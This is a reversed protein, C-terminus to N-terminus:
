RGSRGGFHSNAVDPLPAPAMELVPVVAGQALTSAAVQRGDAYLVVHEGNSVAAAMHWKGADLAQDGAVFGASSQARGLWLGLRNDALGIFRADEAAPDGMGAILATGQQPESSQFWFVLAWSARGELIPDQTAQQNPGQSAEPASALGDLSTSPSLTKNLGPGDFLFVANFPGYAEVPPAPAQALLSASLAIAVFAAAVRVGTCVSPRLVTMPVLADHKHM